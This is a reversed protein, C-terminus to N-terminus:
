NGANIREFDCKHGRSKFFISKCLFHLDVLKEAEFIPLFNMLLLDNFLQNKCFLPLKFSNVKKALNL